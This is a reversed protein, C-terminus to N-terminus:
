GKLDDPSAPLEGLQKADVTYVAPAAKTKVYAREGDRAGVLVTALESGDGKYLAVELASADLGYKAADDSSPAAVDKWKLGRLMYLLDDVKATKAPGKAPEVAKWEEGSRELLVSQPGRRVRVRKVDRPELGSVLARDRLENVSRGLEALAKGEVLVVPGREAVAAYASPTGGRREPSPALILTTPAAAGEQTLTVRVEPKALYRAIGAADDSLFGQARLERLKSLLAGVEVQDAPLAEPAAIRWRNDQRVVTVAGRPSEVELRTVKDREYEVVVKNRLVAVNKPLATWVDEPVLLVSSEGPRMAYVGKKEADVRGVLLSKTARDKDAGTHVALRLPRELGFPELSRPADSVFSKVKASSLKDLFDTITETDAAFAAPRTLKWKGDAREVALTDDRTVIELGTVDNRSFALITKDRFDAVPRTADRLVADAVVFVAPKGAERAYVWVGTPSKAGLQLGVTKGGGLTLTVDAAPKELGFDAVSAPSAAIERDMKATVISTVVEDVPGRDGRAKVPALMQWGEGERKLKVTGDPRKLEVETVDKPELAFVRGKRGETKEREPGLRVEYVYYFGGLAILIVALAVTTQWRM